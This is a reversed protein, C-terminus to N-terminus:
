LDSEKNSRIEQHKDCEAEVHKNGLRRWGFMRMRAVESLRTTFTQGTVGPTTSVPAKARSPILPPGHTTTQAFGAIRIRITRVIMHSSM